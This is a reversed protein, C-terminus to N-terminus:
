LGFLGAGAFIRQGGYRAADGDGQPGRGAAYILLFDAYAIYDADAALQCVAKELGVWPGANKNIPCDDENAVLDGGAGPMDAAPGGGRDASIAASAGRECSRGCRAVAASDGPVRRGVDYPDASM